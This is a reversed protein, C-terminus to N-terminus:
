KKTNCRGPRPRGRLFIQYVAYACVARTMFWVTETTLWMVGFNNYGISIDAGLTTLCFLGFVSLGLSSVLLFINKKDIKIETKQWIFVAPFAHLLHLPFAQDLYGRQIIVLIHYPLEWFFSIFFGLCFAISLAQPFDYKKRFAIFGFSCLVIYFAILEPRFVFLKGSLFFAAIEATIIAPFVLKTLSNLKKTKIHYLIMFPVPAFWLCIQFIVKIDM